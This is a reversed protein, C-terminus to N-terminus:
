AASRAITRDFIAVSEADFRRLDERARDLEERASPGDCKLELQADVVGDLLARCLDCRRDSDTSM